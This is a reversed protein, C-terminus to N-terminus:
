AVHAALNAFLQDRKRRGYLRRRGERLAARDVEESKSPMGDVAAIRREFYSYDAKLAAGRYLLVRATL